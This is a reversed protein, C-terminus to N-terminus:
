LTTLNEKIPPFYCLLAFCFWIWSKALFYYKGLPQLLSCLFWTAGWIAVRWIVTIKAEMSVAKKRFCQCLLYGKIQDDRMGEWSLLSWPFDLCNIIYSIIYCVSCWYTPRSHFVTYTTCQVAKSPHTNPFPLWRVSGGAYYWVYATSNYESSRSDRSM